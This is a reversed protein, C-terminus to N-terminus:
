RRVKLFDYESRSFAGKVLYEGFELSTPSCNKRKSIRPGGVSGDGHGVKPFALGGLTM